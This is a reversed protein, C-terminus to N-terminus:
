AAAKALSSNRLNLIYGKAEESPVPANRQVMGKM